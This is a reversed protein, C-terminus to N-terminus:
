RPGEFRVMLVTDARFYPKTIHAPSQQMILAALAVMALHAARIDLKTPQAAILRRPPRREDRRRRRAKPPHIAPWQTRDRRPRVANCHGAATPAPSQHPRHGNYHNLSERLVLALHRESLILMRDPLERRLAGIARDCIANMRATQPLTTITRLGNATFGGSPRRHLAPGSRPDLITAQRHAGWIWSWTAPRSCRGRGLRM